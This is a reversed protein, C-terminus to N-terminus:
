SSGTKRPGNISSKRNNSKTASINKAGQNNGAQFGGKAQRIQELKEQIEKRKKNM